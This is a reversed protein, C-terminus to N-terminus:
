SQDLDKIKSDWDNKYYDLIYKIHVRFEELNKFYKHKNPSVQSKKHNLNKDFHSEPLNDFTIIKGRAPYFRIYQEIINHIYQLTEPVAIFEFPEVEVEKHFGFYLAMIYSIMTEERNEREIIFVDHTRNEVSKLFWQRAPLFTQLDICLIKTVTKSDDMISKMDQWKGSSVFNTDLEARFNLAQEQTKDKYLRTIGFPEFLRVERKCSYLVPTSRTRPM